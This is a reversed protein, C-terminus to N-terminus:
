AKGARPPCPGLVERVAESVLAPNAAGGSAKLVQGVFVGVVRDHGARYKALSGANAPDAVAARALATIADRDNVQLLGRATAIALPSRADPTPAATAAAAGAAGASCVVPAGAAQVVGMMADLVEKGAKGSIRGSHVLAVLEGLRDADLRHDVSSVGGTSSPPPPPALTDVERVGSVDHLRGFLDGTMWNVVSKCLEQAPPPLTVQAGSAVAQRRATVSLVGELAAATAATGPVLATVSAAVDPLHALAAAASRTYFPVADAFGSAVLVHADYRSLGHEAQLRKAVTAPLVPMSDAVTQLYAGSLVVPMMDPEPLFRYDQAGEKGRMRASIGSAVDFSRTEREITGTILALPADEDTTSPPQLSGPPPPAELIAIQRAVESEIAREVGRLSAVNKLEVRPFSPQRLLPMGADNPGPYVGTCAAAGATSASPVPRWLGGSGAVGSAVRTYSLDESVALLASASSSSGAPSPTGAAPAAPPAATAAGAAASRIREGVDAAERRTVPRVSVNVDCRVNGEEIAADSM